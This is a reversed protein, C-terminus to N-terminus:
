TDTHNYRAAVHLQCETSSVTWKSILNFVIWMVSLKLYPLAIITQM